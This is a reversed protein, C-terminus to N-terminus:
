DKSPRGVHRKGTVVTPSTSPVKIKSGKELDYFFGSKFQSTSELKEQISEDSIPESTRNLGFCVKIGPVNVWKGDVFDQRPIELWVTYNQELCGYTKTAM